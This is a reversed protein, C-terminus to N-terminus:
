RTSLDAVVTAYRAREEGLSERGAIQLKRRKPDHYQGLVTWGDNIINEYSVCIEFYQPELYFKVFHEARHIRRKM